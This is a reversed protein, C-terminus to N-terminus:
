KSSRKWHKQKPVTAVGDITIAGPFLQVEDTNKDM